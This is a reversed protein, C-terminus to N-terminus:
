VLLDSMKMLENTKTLNQKLGGIGKGYFVALNNMAKCHGMSSAKEYYLRAKM